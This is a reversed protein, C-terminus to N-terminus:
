FRANETSTPILDAARADLEVRGRLCLAPSVFANFVARLPGATAACVRLHYSCTCFTPRCFCSFRLSSKQVHPPFGLWLLIAFAFRLESFMIWQILLKSFTLYCTGFM